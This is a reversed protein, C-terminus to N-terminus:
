VLVLHNKGRPPRIKTKISTNTNTNAHFQFIVWAHSYLEIGELTEMPVSLQIYGRSHPVLAGQRPTGMRKTFPSVLYGICRLLMDNASSSPSSNTLSSGKMDFSNGESNSSSLVGQSSRAKNRENELDKLACRLKQEARIRGKREALRQESLHKKVNLLKRKLKYVLSAALTASFTAAIALVKSSVKSM